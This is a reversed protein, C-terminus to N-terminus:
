RDMMCAGVLEGCSSQICGFCTQDADVTGSCFAGCVDSCKDYCICVVMTNQIEASSKKGNGNFACVTDRRTRSDLNDACRGCGPADVLAIDPAHTITLPGGDTGGDRQGEVTPSRDVCAVTSLLTVAVAAIGYNRIL